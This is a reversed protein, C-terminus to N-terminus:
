IIMRNSRCVSGYIEVSGGYSFRSVYERASGVVFIVDPHMTTRKDERGLPGSLPSMIEDDYGYKM